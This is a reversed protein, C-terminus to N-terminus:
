KNKKSPYIITKELALDSEKIDFVSHINPSTNVTVIKSKVKNIFRAANLNDETFITSSYRSGNYNITAIAEELGAVVIAGPLMVKLKENLYVNIDLGMNIIKVLFEKDVFDDIYLDYSLYGSALVPVKSGCIVRRQEDCSGIVINLDVNAYEEELVKEVDETIFLNVFNEDLDNQKLVEKIIGILLNNAGYMYGSSIVIATNGVIFNRLLSELVVYFHGKNFIFVNGRDLYERGYVKSGDKKSEIVKGYYIEEKSVGTFINKVVQKDVVFGNHNKSDIKSALVLREWNSEISTEIDKIVKKIVKEDLGAKDVLIAKNVVKSITEKNDVM